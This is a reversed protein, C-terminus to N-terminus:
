FSYFNLAFGVDFGTFDLTTYREANASGVSAPADFDVVGKNTGTVLAVDASNGNQDVITGRFNSIKVYRGEAYLEVGLRNSIAFERGIGAQFGVNGSYLDGIWNEVLTSEHQNYFNSYSYTEDVHVASAYYGVGAKFYFRGGADPLFVYYDLTLPVLYPSLIENEYDGNQYTVNATYNSIAMAKAGIALGMYPNLLFGLEAGLHLGSNSSISNGNYAIPLGLDANVYTGNNINNAADTLDGLQAYSYGLELKTWLKAHDIPNLGDKYDVAPETWIGGPRPRIGPQVVVTSNQNQVPENESWNNQNNTSSAPSTNKSNKLNDVVVSLTSNNPNIQLSKQYADLAAQNNNLKAYANGISEYAQWDNPNAQAASNFYGIAKEYLGRNYLSMGQDDYDQAITTVAMLGTPVMLLIGLFTLVLQKQM